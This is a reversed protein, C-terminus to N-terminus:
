SLPRRGGRERRRCVIEIGTTSPIKGARAGENKKIEERAGEDRGHEEGIRRRPHEQLLARWPWRPSKVREGFLNNKWEM